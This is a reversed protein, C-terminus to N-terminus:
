ASMTTPWTISTRRGPAPRRDRSRHRVGRRLDPWADPRRAPRPEAPRGRRPDRPAVMQGRVDIPATGDLGLLHLTSCCRSSPSGRTRVQVHGAPRRSRRSIFPVEEHEVNVCEVPGIGEPFVFVEPNASRSRHPLPGTWARLDGSPQPVGRDHDLDLLHPRVRLRRGRPRSWGSGRDRRDRLLARRGRVPGRCRLVGARDRPRHHGVPGPGVWDDHRPSSITAWCWVRSRTRGSPIVSRCAPPGHRHLSM